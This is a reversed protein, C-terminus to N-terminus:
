SPASEPFVWAIAPALVAPDAVFPRLSQAVLAVYHDVAAEDDGDPSSLSREALWFRAILSWTAVLRTVDGPDEIGVLAGTRAPARITAALEHRRRAETERYTRGLEPWTRAIHVISEALCRYHLRALLAARLGVPLAPVTTAREPDARGLNRDRLGELLARVIDERPTFWYSLNGPSMELDRALDRVGVNDVGRENFLVRARELVRARTPQMTESM